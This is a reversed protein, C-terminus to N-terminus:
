RYIEKPRGTDRRSCLRLLVTSDKGGSFSIFARGNTESLFREMTGVAHDIKQYLNWNQREKFEQYTIKM